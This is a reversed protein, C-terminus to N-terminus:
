IGVDLFALCDRAKELGQAAALELYDFGEGVDREVGEGDYYM